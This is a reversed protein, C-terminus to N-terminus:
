RTDTSACKTKLPTVLHRTLLWGFFRALNGSVKSPQSSPTAPGAEEIAIPAEAKDGYAYYGEYMYRYSYSYEIKAVDFKGLMAALRTLMTWVLLQSQGVVRLTDLSGADFLIGGGGLIVADALRLKKWLALPRRAQFADVGYREAFYAPRQVAHGVRDANRM